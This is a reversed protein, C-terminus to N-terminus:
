HLVSYEIIRETPSLQRLKVYVVVGKEKFSKLLEGAKEGWEFCIVVNKKLYNEIGLYAFEKSEQINYLDYHALLHVLKHRTKYEYSIVFTPSIINQTGLLDGIGKVFVTKGAGLDGELIYIIPKQSVVSLHKKLLFQSIKKTQLETKSIFTNEKQFVIDGKRVVKVSDQSLDVITSPKNRPLKGGDIILDILNRKSKPLEKLLTEVGYHASRGSLNASTATLPKGYERVLNTIFAYDPFRVGLTGKESELLKDVIHKSELVITFPGPLLEKLLHHQKDSVLVQRELMELDSVFISIAKGPPRNKFATLKKVAQRNTADVVLGYVTDSPVIFLGGNKLCNILGHIVTNKLQIIKM